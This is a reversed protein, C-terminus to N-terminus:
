AALFDVDVRPVPSTSSNTVVGAYSIGDRICAALYNFRTPLAGIDTGTADVALVRTRFVLNLPTGVPPVSRTTSFYDYLGVDELSVSFAQRCRDEGSSGGSQSGNGDAQRRSGSYDSFSGSGSSGM